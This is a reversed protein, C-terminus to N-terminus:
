DRPVLKAGPRIPGPGSAYAHEVARTVRVLEVGQLRAARGLLGAMAELGVLRSPERELLASLEAQLFVVRQRFEGENV